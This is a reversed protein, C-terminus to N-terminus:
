DSSTKLTTSKQLISAHNSRRPISSNTQRSYISATPTTSNLNLLNQEKYLKKRLTSNILPTSDTRATITVVNTFLSMGALNGASYLTNATHAFTNPKSLNELVIILKFPRRAFRANCNHKNKATTAICTNIHLTVVHALNPQFYPILEELRSPSLLGGM